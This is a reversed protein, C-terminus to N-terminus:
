ALEGLMRFIEVMQRRKLPDHVAQMPTPSPLVFRKKWPLIKGTIDILNRRPFFLRNVYRGCAIIHQPNVIDIEEKLYLLSAATEAKTAERELPTRWKLVPTVFTHSSRKLDAVQLMDHLMIGGPGTLPTKINEDNPEPMEIIIMALPSEDMGNGVIMNRNYKLHVFKSDNAQRRYLNELKVHSTLVRKEPIVEKDRQM